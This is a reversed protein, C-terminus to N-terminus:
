GTMSGKKENKTRNRGDRRRALLAAARGARGGKRVVKNRQKLQEKERENDDM